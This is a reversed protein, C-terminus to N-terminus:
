RVYFQTEYHLLKTAPRLSFLLISEGTEQIHRIARAVILTSAFTKTTQTNENQRLDFLRLPINRYLGLEFFQATAVSLFSQMRTDLVPLRMSPEFDNDNSILEFDSSSDVILDYYREIVSVAAESCKATLENSDTNIVDM